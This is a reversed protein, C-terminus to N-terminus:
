HIGGLSNVRVVEFKTLTMKLGKGDSATLLKLKLQLGNGHRSPSNRHKAM